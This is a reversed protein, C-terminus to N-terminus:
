MESGNGFDVCSDEIVQIVVVAGGSGAMAQKAGVEMWEKCVQEGTHGCLLMILRVQCNSFQLNEPGVGLITFKPM